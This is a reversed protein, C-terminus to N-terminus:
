FYPVSTWLCSLGVTVFFLSFFDSNSESNSSNQGQTESVMYSKKNFFIYLHIYGSPLLIELPSVLALLNPLWNENLSAHTCLDLLSLHFFLLSLLFSWKRINLHRSHQIYFSNTYLPIRGKENKEIIRFNYIYEIKLLFAM